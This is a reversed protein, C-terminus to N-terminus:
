TKCTEVYEELVGLLSHELVQKVFIINYQKVYEFDRAVSVFGLDNLFSVVDSALWQNEWFKIEEVEIFIADARKLTELGGAFVSAQAGEVDIWLALSGESQCFSDLRVSNITHEEYSIGCAYRKLISNNGIDYPLEKNGNNRMLQFKIEGDTDSVALHRYDVGLTTYNNAKTFKTYNYPNAEFAYCQKALGLQKAEISFFASNAGVEYLCDVPCARLINKFLEVLLKNSRSREGKCALDFYESVNIM